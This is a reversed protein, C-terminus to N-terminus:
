LGDLWRGLALAASDALVPAYLRNDARLAAISLGAQGLEARHGILWRELGAQEVELHFQLGLGFKGLTFAQHPTISTSALSLAGPPLDFIDGHWHLVKAAGLGGLPHDRGAATFDLSSWGIEKGRPNAAVKAGLATAMLQAGLCIGLTPREAALRRRILDLEDALFPYDAGEYVGIPGGLVILLDDALPDIGSLDDIGAEIPRIAFGRRELVSHLLGLDEFAVHRIVLCTRM